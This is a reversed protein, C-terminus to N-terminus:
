DSDGEESDDKYGTNPQNTNSRKAKAQATNQTVFETSFGPINPGSHTDSNGRSANTSSDNPSVPLKMLIRQLVHRYLQNRLTTVGPQASTEFLPCVDDSDQYRTRTQLDPHEASMEATNLLQRFSVFHRTCIMAYRDLMYFNCGIGVLLQKEDSELLKLFHSYLVHTITVEGCGTIINEAIHKPSNGGETLQSEMTLRGNKDKILQFTTMTTTRMVLDFASTLPTASCSGTTLLALMKDFTGQYHLWIKEALDCIM